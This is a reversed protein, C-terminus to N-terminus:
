KKRVMLPECRCRPRNRIRSKTHDKWKYEKVCGLLLTCDGIKLLDFELKANSAFKKSRAHELDDEPRPTYQAFSTGISGISTINEM